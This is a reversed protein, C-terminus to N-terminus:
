KSAQCKHMYCQTQPTIATPTQFLTRKEQEMKRKYWFGPHRKMVAGKSGKSRRSKLRGM